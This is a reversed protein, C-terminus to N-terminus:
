DKSPERSKLAITLRVSLRKYVSASAATATSEAEPPAAEADASEGTWFLAPQNPKIDSVM